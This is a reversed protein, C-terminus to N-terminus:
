WCGAWSAGATVAAGDSWAVEGPSLHRYEIVAWWRTAEAGSSCRGRDGVTILGTTDPILNQGFLTVGDFRRHRALTRIPEKGTRLTGPDVLTM